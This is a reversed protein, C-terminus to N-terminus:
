IMKPHSSDHLLKCANIILRKGDLKPIQNAASAGIAVIPFQYHSKLLNFPNTVSTRKTEIKKKPIKTKNKILKYSKRVPMVEEKIKKFLTM